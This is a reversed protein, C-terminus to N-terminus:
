KVIGALVDSDPLHPLVVNEKKVSLVFVAIRLALVSVNLIV